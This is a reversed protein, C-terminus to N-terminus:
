VLLSILPRVNEMSDNENYFEQGEGAWDFDFCLEFSWFLPEAINYQVRSFWLVMWWSALNIINGLLFRSWSSLVGRLMWFLFRKWKWGIFKLWIVTLFKIFFTVCCFNNYRYILNNGTLIDKKCSYKIKMRDRDSATVGISKENMVSLLWEGSVIMM